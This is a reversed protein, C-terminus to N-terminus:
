EHNLTKAIAQMQAPVDYDLPNIVALKAKLEDAMRRAAEGRHEKSVFVVSVGRARCTNLLQQMRHASPEKGDHEVSLQQLGYQRAFYGLAPHYILFARQELPKLETALATDLQDMSRDFLALRQRFYDANVSDRLCLATCANQAMTRLNDTSMWTHPDMSDSGDHSHDADYIPRIGEGLDVMQVEPANEAMKPLITREFGLSGARFLLVSHNLEMMQRPTPEYTEPSAGQPMLTHVEYKDGAIAEVVYRLPEISVSLVERDSRQASQCGCLWLTIGFLLLMTPRLKSSLHFM